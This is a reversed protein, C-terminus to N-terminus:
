RFYIKIWLDSFLAFLLALSRFHQDNSNLQVFFFFFFDVLLKRRVEKPYKDKDFEYKKFKPCNSLKEMYCANTGTGLIVGIQCTNEKFACAM